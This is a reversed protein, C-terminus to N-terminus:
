SINRKTQQKISQCTLMLINTVNEGEVIRANQIDVTNNYALGVPLNDIVTLNGTYDVDGVNIITLNYDVYENYSVVTQNATKKPVPIISITANDVNNTYNWETENCSVNATNTINDAVKAARSRIVLTVSTGNELFGIKWEGSTSNYSRNDARIFEVESPLIDRLTVNTANTGNGANHVTITWIVTENLFYEEKNATKNVSIDTFAQPTITENVTRNAGKPAILTMNNTLNGMANVKVRVVITANTYAPIETIQWTIKQGEELTEGVQTAGIIRVTNNYELGEPLSDVVTLIEQYTENGTNKVILNYDVYDHYYPTSNTVNKEPLPVVDVTKNAENNTLNWDHDPTTINVINTYNGSKTCNTEMILIGTNNKDFDRLRLYVNTLNNTTQNEITLSVKQTM